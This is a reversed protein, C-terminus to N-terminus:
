KSLARRGCRHLPRDRVPAHHEGPKRFQEIGGLQANEEVARKAGARMAEDADLQQERLLTASADSMVWERAMDAQNSRRTSGRHEKPKIGARWRREFEAPAINGLTV